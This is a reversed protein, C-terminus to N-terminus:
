EAGKAAVMPPLLAVGTCVVLGYWSSGAQTPKSSQPFERRGEFREFRFLSNMIVTTFTSYVFWVLFAIFSSFYTYKSSLLGTDRSEMDTMLQQGNVMQELTTDSMQYFARWDIDVYYSGNRTRSLKEPFRLLDFLWITKLSWSPFWLYAM